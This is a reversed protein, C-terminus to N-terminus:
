AASVSNQEQLVVKFVTYSRNTACEEITAEL